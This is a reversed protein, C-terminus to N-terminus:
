VCYLIMCVSNISCVCVTTVRPARSTYGLRGWNIGHLQNAQGHSTRGGKMM